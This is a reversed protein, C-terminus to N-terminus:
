ECAHKSCKGQLMYEHLFLTNTSSVTLPFKLILNPSPIKESKVMDNNKSWQASCSYLSSQGYLSSSM